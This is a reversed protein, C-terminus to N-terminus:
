WDYSNVGELWFHLMPVYVDLKGRSEVKAEKRWHGPSSFSHINRKIRRYSRWKRVYIMM